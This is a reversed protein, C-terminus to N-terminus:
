PPFDHGVVITVDVVSQPTGAREISGIDGLREQIDQAARLIEPDDTYVVIRTSDYTFRDANGTLVIRYSGDALREAVEQGVGPRGNGNLIQLALRDTIARDDRSAAFRDDIVSSLREEDSRYLDDDGSGLPVVPLSVSTLEDQVRHEALEGLVTRIRDPTATGPFTRAADVVADLIAPDDAIAQFLADLVQRTRPLVDLETEGQGHILAYSAVEEPTASRAGPEIAEGDHGDRPVIRAGVTLDAGGTSTFWSAWGSRDVALVGDIHLGLLNDVTVAVLSSGGLEWAERLTFSGFGPVDTVVTTPVLLVTGREDRRDTALVALSRLEGGPVQDDVSALLFAPQWGDAPPEPAAEDEAAPGVIDRALDIWGLQMAVLGLIALAVLALVTAVLRSSRRAPPLAPSPRPTTGSPEGVDRDAVEDREVDPAAEADDAVEPEGEPAPEAVAEADDAGTDGAGSREDEGADGFLAEGSIRDRGQDGVQPDTDQVRALERERRKGRRRRGRRRAPEVADEGADGVEGGIPSLEIDPDRGGGAPAAPHDSDDRPRADSRRRRPVPESDGGRAARKARRTRRRLERRTMESRRRRDGAGEAAAPVNAEAEEDGPPQGERRDAM